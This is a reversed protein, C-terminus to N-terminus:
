DKSVEIFCRCNVDLAAVGFGGPALASYGDWTFFEEDIPVTQGELYDHEERVKPDLQTRWTKSTAGAKSATDLVAQNYVRHAETEAVRIIGPMDLAEMYEGVLENFPKIDNTSMVNNRYIADEMENIDVSKDYGLMEAAAEDGMLYAQILFELVDDICEEKSQTMGEVSLLKSKLANLEDFPFKNM